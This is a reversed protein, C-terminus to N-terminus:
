RCININKGPAAEAERVVNKEGEGTEYHTELIVNIQLNRSRKNQLAEQEILERLPKPIQISFETKEPKLEKM